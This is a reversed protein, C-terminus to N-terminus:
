MSCSTLQPQIWALLHFLTKRDLQWRLSFAPIAVKILATSTELLSLSAQNTLSPRLADRVNSCLLIATWPVRSLHNQPFILLPSPPAPVSPRRLFSYSHRHSGRAFADDKM